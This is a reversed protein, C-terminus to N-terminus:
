RTGGKGGNLILKGAGDCKRCPTIPKSPEKGSGGCFACTVVIISM